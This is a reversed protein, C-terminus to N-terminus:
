QTRSEGLAKRDVDSEQKDIYRSIALTLGEHSQVDAYGVFEMRYGGPYHARFAEHRDPRTEELCGLDSPMYGEASCVHNGLPTGDEALLDAFLLGPDGGNNFGYIAPLDVVPKGHPNHVAYPRANWHSIRAAEKAPM